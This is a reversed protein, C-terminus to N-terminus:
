MITVEWKAKQQMQSPVKHCSGVMIEAYNVKRDGLLGYCEPSPVCCATTIVAAGVGPTETPGRRGPRSGWGAERAARSTVGLIVGLVGSAAGSEVATLLHLYEESLFAILISILKLPSSPLFVCTRFHVVIRFLEQTLSSNVLSILYKCSFMLKLISYIKSNHSEVLVMIIQVNIVSISKDSIFLFQIHIIKPFHFLM